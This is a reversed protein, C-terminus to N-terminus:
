QFPSTARPVQKPPQLSHFVALSLWGGAFALVVPAFIFLSAILNILQTEGFSNRGFYNRSGWRDFFDFGVALSYFVLALFPVAGGALGGIFFARRSDRAYIVGAIWYAPSLWALACFLPLAIFQPANLVGCYVCIIATLIFLTRLSFQM